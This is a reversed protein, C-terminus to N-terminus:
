RILLRYDSPSNVNVSQGGSIYGYLLGGAIAKRLFDQTNKSNLLTPLVVPNMIFLGTLFFQNAKLRLLDSKEKVSDLAMARNDTPSIWVLYKGGQSQQTVLYTIQAGTNNHFELMNGLNFGQNVEDGDAKIFPQRIPYQDNFLKLVEAVGSQPINHTFYRIGFSDDRYHNFIPDHTQESVLVWIEKIGARRMHSLPSDLITTTYSTPLLQKPLRDGTVERARLGLGGCFILGILSSKPWIEKTSKCIENSM